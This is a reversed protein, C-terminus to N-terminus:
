QIDLNRELMRRVAEDATLNVVPGQGATAPAAPAGPATQGAQQMAQAILDKVRDAGAEQAAAPATVAATIAAAAWFSVTKRM